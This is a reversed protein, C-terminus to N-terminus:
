DELDFDFSFGEMEFYISQGVNIGHLDDGDAWYSITCEMSSQLSKFAQLIQQHKEKAKPVILSIANKADEATLYSSSMDLATYSLGRRTRNVQIKGNRYCPIYSIVEIGYSHRDLELNPYKQLMEQAAAERLERFRQNRQEPTEQTM